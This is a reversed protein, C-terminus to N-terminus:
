FFAKRALRSKCQYWHGHRKEFPEGRAAREELSMETEFPREDGLTQCVPLFWSGIWLALMTLLVGVFIRRPTWRSIPAIPPEFGNPAM